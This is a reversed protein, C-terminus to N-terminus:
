LAPISVEAFSGPKLGQKRPAREIITRCQPLVTCPAQLGSRAESCAVRGQFPREEVPNDPRPEHYVYQRSRNTPYRRKLAADCALSFRFRTGYPRRSVGRSEFCFADAADGGATAFLALVSQILAFARNFGTTKTQPCLRQSSLLRRLHHNYSTIEMGAPLL